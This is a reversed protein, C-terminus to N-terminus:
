AEDGTAAARRRARAPEHGAGGTMVLLGVGAATLVAGGLTELYYGVGPDARADAYLEGIQGTENLDPLDWVASVLLAALGLVALATMAPRAGRLAGPIMLAAFGALVLLSPGHREWGSRVTDQNALRSTTGVTIEVVATFTAAVLLLAGIGAAAALGARLGDHTPRPPRLSPM